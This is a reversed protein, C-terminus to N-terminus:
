KTLPIPNKRAGVSAKQQENYAKWAGDIVYAHIADDEEVTLKKINPFHL